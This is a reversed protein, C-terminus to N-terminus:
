VASLFCGDVRAIEYTGGEINDCAACVSCIIIHIYSILHWVKMRMRLCICLDTPSIERSTSPPLTLSSMHSVQPPSCTLTRFM